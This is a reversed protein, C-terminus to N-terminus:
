PARRSPSSPPAPSTRPPPSRPDRTSDYPTAQPGGRYLNLGVLQAIYDTRPHRAIDSPAGEQVIRGHEIVVLRDALVMADLPDHTVLM